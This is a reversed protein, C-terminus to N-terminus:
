NRIELMTLDSTPVVNRPDHRYKALREPLTLGLRELLIAQSRDPRVVCRIRLERAPGDALPLVIDAATIRSLETSSRARRDGLGARSQWQQLTKWLVYALFCVLIHAKIREAKQHWIPRIALDCRTSASPRRPRPSSSTPGGSSRTPGTPSTPACCTAARPSGPGTTGSPSRQGSCAALGGRQRTSRRHASRIARAARANRELLRGIQRELVEAIWRRKSSRSAGRRHEALGGRHAPEFREHM